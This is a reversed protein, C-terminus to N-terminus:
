IQTVCLRKLRARKGFQWFEIFPEREKKAKHLAAANSNSIVFILTNSMKGGLEKKEGMGSKYDKRAQSKCHVLVKKHWLTDNGCSM